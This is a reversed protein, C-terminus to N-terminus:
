KLYVMRKTEVFDGAEIRYFYVGSSYRSADWVVRHRGAKQKDDVLTEVKRGLLDFIDIRVRGVDPLGYGITTSSNFPNPYGSLSFDFLKPTHDEINTLLELAYIAITNNSVRIFIEDDGDNDADEILFIENTFSMLGDIEGTVGDLLYNYSNPTEYRFVIKPGSFISPYSLVFARNTIPQESSLCWINDDSLEEYLCIGYGEPWGNRFCLAVEGSNNNHNIEDNLLWKLSPWVIPPFPPTINSLYFLIDNYTASNDSLIIEDIRLSTSLDDINNSRSYYKFGNYNNLSVNNGLIYNGSVLSYAQTLNTGDFAIVSGYFDLFNPLNGEFREEIEIFLLIMPNPDLSDGLASVEVNKPIQRMVRVISGEYLEYNPLTLIVSSVSDYAPGDYIYVWVTDMNNEVNYRTFPEKKVVAVDTWSDGNRDGIAYCKFTSDFPPSTWLTQSNHPDILVVYINYSYYGLTAIDLLGDNNFDDFKFIRPGNIEASTWIQEFTVGDYVCINTSTAVIIEKLSDGNLDEVHLEIINRPTM